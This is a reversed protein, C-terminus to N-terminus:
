RVAPEDDTESGEPDHTGPDHTALDQEDTDHLPTASTVAAVASAFNGPPPPSTTAWELTAGGWPDDSAPTGRRRGAKGALEGVVLLIGLVGLVGGVLSVANLAVSLGGDDFAPDALLQDEFLGNVLDPAALLIAGLFTLAFVAKGQVEGLLVGWIKPAWYWLAAFAGLTAAGYLTYHVQAAQWVTGRLGLPEIAATAGALAGLLLHVVAGLALLNAASLSFRGRRVTDGLLGLLALAPLVAALAVGIYLLEDTREELQAWAGFGLVGMIGLVVVAAGHVRHRSRAMVPVIEAAVGAAPVALVFVQPVSFFWSSSSAALDVGGFHHAIYGEVLRAVLVPCALLTLGGGVVVSWTFLPTRLLTMGEARSAMATTLVCILGLVLALNMGILALLHLDVGVDSGGGPGGNAAYAALLLLGSALHLWYALAAGRPFAIESAGVQLPVLYTALGVFFPVLFGFVAVEGHLTYVQGFTDDSFIEFGTDLREAGLIAGVVSGVVLYALATVLYLRGVRKHDATAFWAGLGAPPGEVPDPDVKSSVSGTEPRTETMSM